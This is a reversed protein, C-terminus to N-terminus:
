SAAGILLAAVRERQRRLENVRTALRAARAPLRAAALRETLAQGSLTDLGVVLDGLGLSEAALRVKDDYAIAVAPVGALAGLLLGHLRVTILGSAHTLREIAAAPTPGLAECRVDNLGARALRAGLLDVFAEDARGGMSLLIPRLGHASAAADAVASALMEARHADAAVPARVILALQGSAGGHPQDIFLAPDPIVAAGPPEGLLRLSGADRVLVLSSARAAIRALARLWRRRLPGVGVGIWAVRAGALRAAVVWALYRPVVWRWHDNFLGGGALVLMDARRMARLTALDPLLRRPTLRRADRFASITEPRPGSIVTDVRASSGALAAEIGALIAEDGLNGFGQFGVTAIRLPEPGSM